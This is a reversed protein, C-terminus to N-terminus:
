AALSCCLLMGSSIPRLYGCGVSRRQWYRHSFVAAETGPRDDNAALLRGAAPALRLTTYYM